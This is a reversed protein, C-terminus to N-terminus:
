AVRQSRKWQWQRLPWGTGEIVRAGTYGPAPRLAYLSWHKAPVIDKSAVYLDVPTHAPDTTLPVSFSNLPIALGEGCAKLYAEKKTWCSFFTETYLHSPLAILYDVEDASFFRRAIDAYDSQARIYELDVGVNSAPAIAILAFGASHSLNFKLRAGFEPSLDPKGFANYVFNIQGPQTQLYRGLLDRLVGRAVIFRQRDREFQFRASRTREDPTLTAYLCASTEPPVDLSACWSHVEDRALQFSSPLSPTLSMASTMLQRDGRDDALLRGLAGRRGDRRASRATGCLVGQRARHPPQGCGDPRWGAVAREWSFARACGWLLPRSSLGDSAKELARMMGFPSRRRALHTSHLTLSPSSSLSRKGKGFM